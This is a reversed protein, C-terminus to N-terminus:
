TYFFLVDIVFTIQYTILYFWSKKISFKLFLKCFSNFNKPSNEKLPQSTFSFTILLHILTLLKRAVIYFFFIWYFDHDSSIRTSIQNISKNRVGQGDNSFIKLNALALFSELWFILIKFCRFHLYRTIFTRHILLFSCFM